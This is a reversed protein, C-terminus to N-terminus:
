VRTLLHSQGQAIAKGIAAAMPTAGGLATEIQRARLFYRHVPYDIDAGIGGHMHQASHTIRHGGIAAWYKAAAIEANTAIGEDLAWVARLYSSRMAELDIFGDAARQQAAQMSGIPRGFQIRSSTYEATRRLASEAVGLQMAVLGIRAQKVISDVLTTGEAPAGLLDAATIRVEAFDFRAHPEGGTTLQDTISLGERGTEILFAIAGHEDTRASVVAVKAQAGYPVATKAGSVIWGGDSPVARLSPLAPDLNHPEELAATAVVRGAAIEPLWRRKQESSGGLVISRAGLVLTAYLPVPALTRGQEELVLGIETMGFGTGGDEEAIGLGLLGADALIQWLAEDHSAGTRSFLRLSEDTCNESLILAALDKLSKQDETLAFDM